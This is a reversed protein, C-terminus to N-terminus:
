LPALTIDCIDGTDVGSKACQPATLNFFYVDQGKGWPRVNRQFPLGGNLTVRASFAGSRGAVLEAPVVVFRPLDPQKRAIRARFTIM